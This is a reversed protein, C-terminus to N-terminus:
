TILQAGFDAVVCCVLFIADAIDFHASLIFDLIHFNKIREIAREVHVRLSAVRRTQVLEKETLQQGNKIFPPINVYAGRESTVLFLFCLKYAELSFKSVGGNGANVACCM